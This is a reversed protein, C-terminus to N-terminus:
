HLIREACRFQYFFELFRANSVLASRIHYADKCVHSIFFLLKFGSTAIFRMIVNDIRLFIFKRLM